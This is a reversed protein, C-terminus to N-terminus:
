FPKAALAKRSEQVLNDTDKIIRSLRERERATENVIRTAPEVTLLSNICSRNAVKARLLAIM